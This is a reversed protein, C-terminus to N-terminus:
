EYLVEAALWAVGRERLYALAQSTSDVQDKFAAAPFHALEEEYEMLWAASEPLWVLGAEMAPTENRLRLEKSATPKTGVVPFRFRGEARLQDILSSGSSKDEVLVVNPQWREAQSEVARKLEPADCRARYVDALYIGYERGRRFAQIWTTCVSFASDKERRGATDWSQVVFCRGDRAPLERYRQFWRLSVVAGESPVPSGQYLASWFYSGQIQKIRELEALPYREPWLAEGALRGTLPEDDVAIAPFNLFTWDEGHDAYNSILRGPPDDLHWRTAILIKHGGPEMRTSAVSRYWDWDRDRILKSGAEQADKVLDDLLLWKAGRGTMGGGVGLTVMGGGATTEWEDASIAKPNIKFRLDPACEIATQLARRGWGRAYDHAYSAMIVRHDAFHDLVWIPFWHSVSESKGHRPPCTIGLNRIPGLVPHPDGFAM